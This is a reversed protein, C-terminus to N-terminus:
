EEPIFHDQAPNYWCIQGSKLTAQIHRLGHIEKINSTDLQSFSYKQYGIWDNNGPGFLYSSGDKEGVYYDVGYLKFSSDTNISTLGHTDMM